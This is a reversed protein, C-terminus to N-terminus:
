GGGRRREKARKWTARGKIKWKDVGGPQRSENVQRVKRLRYDRLKTDALVEDALTPKREKKTLRSFYDHAPDIVTGVVKIIEFDKKLESTIVPAPMDFWNKGTTDKLSKKVLKNLKKPERPPVYLGDVLENETKRLSTESPSRSDMFSGEQRSFPISVKPAWSLGISDGKEQM